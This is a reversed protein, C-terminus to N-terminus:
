EAFVDSPNKPITGDDVLCQVDLIRLDLRITWRGQALINLGCCPLSRSAKYFSPNTSPRVIPKLLRTTRM